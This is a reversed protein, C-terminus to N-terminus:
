LGNFPSGWPLNWMQVLGCSMRRNNGDVFGGRLYRCNHNEVISKWDPCRNRPATIRAKAEATGQLGVNVIEKLSLAIVVALDVWMGHMAMTWRYIISPRGYFPSGPQYFWTSCCVMTLEFGPEEHPPNQSFTINTSAADKNFLRTMDSDLGGYEDLGDVFICLRMKITDQSLLAEM